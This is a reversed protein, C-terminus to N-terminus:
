RRKLAAEVALGDIDFRTPLRRLTAARSFMSGSM